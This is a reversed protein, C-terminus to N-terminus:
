SGARRRPPPSRQCMRCVEMTLSGPSELLVAKTRACIVGSRVLGCGTPDFWRTEVGFDKLLGRGMARSPEYANDTMLLVDGPRLMTLM